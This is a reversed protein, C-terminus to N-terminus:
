VSKAVPFYKELMQGFDTRTTYRLRIENYPFARHLNEVNVRNEPDTTVVAVM